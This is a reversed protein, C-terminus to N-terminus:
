QDDTKNMQARIYDYPEIFWFALLGFAGGWRAAAALETSGIRLAVYQGTSMIGPMTPSIFNMKRIFERMKSM